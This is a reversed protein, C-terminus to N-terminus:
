FKHIAKYEVPMEYSIINRFRQARMKGVYMGLASGIYYKSLSYFNTFLQINFSDKHLIYGKIEANRLLARKLIEHAEETSQNNIFVTAYCLINLFVKKDNVFLKKEKKLQIKNRKRRLRKKM